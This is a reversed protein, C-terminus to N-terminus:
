FTLYFQNRLSIQALWQTTDQFGSRWSRNVGASFTLAGVRFARDVSLVARRRRLDPEDTVRVFRFGEDRANNSTTFYQSPDRAEEVISLAVLHGPSSQWSASVTAGTANPGLPDGLIAQRYTVGSRFEGHEYLRLSTNHWESRLTLQGGALAIPLRAGLLHAADEVLSSRLRRADFDDIQLEYYVDLGSLEPVRVRLNGGALKNSIQLDAHQPAIADIVPFLDVIRQLLTAKPGGDGGSHALVAVGLEFRSWPQVSVQWGALKAHPPNQSAGLDALFAVARTPGALRFLWPLVMSTDTAVSVSPFPSANGSLFLSSQPSQGWQMEDVGARLAVNRFVARGYARHLRMETGTTSESAIVRSLRPEVGVAFRDGIALLTTSALTGTTGHALPWGGGWRAAQFPSTTADIAGLGNSMFREARANTTGVEGRWGALVRAGSSVRGTGTLASDLADLERLAWHRRNGPPASDIAVRLRKLMVEFQRRSVSREGLLVGATPLLASVSELASYAASSAPVTAASQAGAGGGIVLLGIYWRRIQTLKGEPLQM